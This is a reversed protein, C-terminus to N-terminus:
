GGSRSRSRRANWLYYVPLGSLLVGVNAAVTWPERVMYNGLLFVAAV